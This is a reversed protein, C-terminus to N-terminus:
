PVVVVQFTSSLLGFKRERQSSLSVPLFEAGSYNAQMQCLLRIPIIAISISFVCQNAKYAVNEHGDSRLSLPVGPYRLVFARIAHPCGQPSGLCYRM